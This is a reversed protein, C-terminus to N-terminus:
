IIDLAQLMKTRVYAPGFTQDTPKPRNYTVLYKEGPSVDFHEVKQHNFCMLSGFHNLYDKSGWILVRHDHSTLFYSGLPSWGSHGYKDVPVTFFPQAFEDCCEEMKFPIHHYKRTLSSSEPISNPVRKIVLPIFRLHSEEDSSRGPGTRESKRSKQRNHLFYHDAGLNAM